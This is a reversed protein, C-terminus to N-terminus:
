ETRNSEIPNSRALSPTAYWDRFWDLYLASPPWTLSLYSDISYIKVLVGVCSCRCTMHSDLSRSISRAISLRRRVCVPVMLLIRIIPKQFRPETFHRFHNWILWMSIIISFVVFIGCIWWIVDHAQYVM